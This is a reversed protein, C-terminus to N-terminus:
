STWHTRCKKPDFRRNKWPRLPASRKDYFSAFLVLFNRISPFPTVRAYASPSVRACGTASPAGIDQSPLEVATGVNHAVQRESMTRKRVNLANTSM